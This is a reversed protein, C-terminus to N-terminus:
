MDYREKINKVTIDNYGLQGLKMGLKLVKIYDEATFAYSCFEDKLVYDSPYAINYNIDETVVHGNGDECYSIATVRESCTQSPVHENKFVCLELENKM